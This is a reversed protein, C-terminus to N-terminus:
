PTGVPIIGQGPKYIHTVAQKPIESLINSENNQNGSLIRYNRHANDSVQDLRQELDDLVGLRAPHSSYPDVKSASKLANVIPIDLRSGAPVVGPLEQTFLIDNLNQFKNWNKDYEGSGGVKTLARSAGVEFNSGQGSPMKASLQRMQNITNKVNQIRSDISSVTKKADSIDAGTGEAEKQKQKYGPTNQYITAISQDIKAQEAPDFTLNREQKLRKVQKQLEPPMDMSSQQPVQSNVGQGINRQLQNNGEQQVMFPMIKDVDDATLIQNPNVGSQKSVNELYTQTNNENPPAYTYIINRLSAPQGNMSASGNVKALLDQKMAQMGADPTSFQQFGTTAGVPRLNGPNNVPRASTQVSPQTSGISQGWPQGGTNQAPTGNDDSQDQQAQQLRMKMYQINLPILQNQLQKSTAEASTNQMQAHQLAASNMGMGGQGIAGLMQAGPQAGAAMTAFGFNTLNNAQDPTMDFIGM